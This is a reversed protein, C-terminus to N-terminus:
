IKWDDPTFNVGYEKKMIEKMVLLSEHRKGERENRESLSNRRRVYEYLPSEDFGYKFGQFMWDLNFSWDYIYKTEERLPCKKIVKRRFVPHGMVTQARLLSEKKVPLSKRYVRVVSNFDENWMSLYYSHCYVDHTPHRKFWEVAKDLRNPLSLDDADQVACLQGKAARYGTMRAGVVGQHETKILRIRPDNLANVISETVVVDDSGDDVIILEWNKYTQYVISLIASAVTRSANYCPMVVSIKM